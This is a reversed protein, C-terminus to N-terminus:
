VPTDKGLEFVNFWYSYVKESPDLANEYVGTYNYINTNIKIGGELDKIVL